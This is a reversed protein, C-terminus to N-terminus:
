LTESTLDKGSEAMRECSVKKRSHAGLPLLADPSAHGNEASASIICVCATAPLTSARGCRSAQMARGPQAPSSQWFNLGSAPLNSQCARYLIPPLPIDDRSIECARQRALVEDAQRTLLEGELDWPSACAICHVANADRAFM